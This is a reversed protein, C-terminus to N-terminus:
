VWSQKIDGPIIRPLSQSPQNPPHTQTAGTTAASGLHMALFTGCTIMLLQGSPSVEAFIDDNQIRIIKLLELVRENQVLASTAGEFKMGNAQGLKEATLCITQYGYKIIEDIGHTNIKQYILGLWEDASENQRSEIPLEEQLWSFNRYYTNIQNEKKNALVQEEHLEEESIEEGDGLQPMLNIEAPARARINAPELSIVEVKDAEITPIDEVVEEKTQPSAESTPIDEVVEEKTQQSAVKPKHRYCWKSDKGKISTSCQEGKRKGMKFVHHCLDPDLEM